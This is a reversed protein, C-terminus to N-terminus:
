NYKTTKLGGRAEAESFYMLRKYLPQKKAQIPQKKKKPFITNKIYHFFLPLWELLLFSQGFILLSKQKLLHKIEEYENYDILERSGNTGDPNSVWVVVDCLRKARLKAIYEGKLIKEIM